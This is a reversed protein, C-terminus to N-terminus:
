KVEGTGLLTQGPKEVIRYLAIQSPPVKISFKVNRYQPEIQKLNEKIRSSAKKGLSEVMTFTNIFIKKENVV